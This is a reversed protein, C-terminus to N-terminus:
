AEPELAWTSGTAAAYGKEAGQAGGSAWTMRTGETEACRM